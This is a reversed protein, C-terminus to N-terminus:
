PSETRLLTSPSQHMWISRSHRHRGCLSPDGRSARWLVVQDRWSPGQAMVPNIVRYEKIEVFLLWTVAMWRLDRDRGLARGVAERRPAIGRNPVDLIM